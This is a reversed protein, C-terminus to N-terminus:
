QQGGRIRAGIQDALTGLEHVEFIRTQGNAPVEPVVLHCARCQGSARQKNACLHQSLYIAPTSHPTANVTGKDVIHCSDASLDPTGVGETVEQPAGSALVGPLDVLAVEQAV